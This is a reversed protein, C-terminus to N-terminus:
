KRDLANQIVREGHMIKKLNQFFFVNILKSKCQQKSDNTMDTVTM